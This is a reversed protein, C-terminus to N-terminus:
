VAPHGRGTDLSRIDARFRRGQLRRPRPCAKEPGLQEITAEIAAVAISEGPKYASQPPPVSLLKVGGAECVQQTMLAKPDRAIVKAKWLQARSHAKRDQALAVSARAREELQTGDFVLCPLTPIGGHIIAAAARHQGDIIEPGRETLAITLPPCHRRVFTSAMRAAVKLDVNRQFEAKFLLDVVPLDMQVGETQGTLDAPIFGPLDPRVFKESTM